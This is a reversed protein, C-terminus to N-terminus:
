EVQDIFGRVKVNKKESRGSRCSKTYIKAIYENPSINNNQIAVKIDLWPQFPNTYM